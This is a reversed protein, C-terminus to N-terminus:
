GAVIGEIAIWLLSCCCGSLMARVGEVVVAVRDIGNSSISSGLLDASGEELALIGIVLTSPLIGDSISGDSISGDSISGDSLIGDSFSGDSISGDSFSGDSCGGECWQDSFIILCHVV